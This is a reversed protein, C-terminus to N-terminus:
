PGTADRRRPRVAAFGAGGTVLLVTAIGALVLSPDVWRGSGRANDQDGVLGVAMGPSVLGAAGADVQTPRPSGKQQLPFTQVVADMGNNKPAGVAFVRTLADAKVPLDVPGFVPNGHQGTPVIDVSYTGAPVEATIFEGNAINAFVVKGDVRVDAPPVVATHAVTIRGTDAPVPRLDNTYVTVVPKATKDAPWHLVVDMSSHDVQFM